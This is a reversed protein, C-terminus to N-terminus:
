GKLLRHQTEAHGFMIRPTIGEVSFRRYLVGQPPLLRRRQRRKLREIKVSFKISIIGYILPRYSLIHVLFHKHFMVNNEM